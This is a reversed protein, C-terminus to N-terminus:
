KITQNIVEVMYQREHLSMKNLERQWREAKRSLMQRKTFTEGLYKTTHLKMKRIDYNMYICHTKPGGRSQSTFPKRIWGQLMDDYLECPYHSIMVNQTWFKSHTLFDIHDTETFEKKYLDVTTSRTSKLYPPDAFIFTDEPHDYYNLLWEHMEQYGMSFCMMWKCEDFKHWQHIVDSDLDCGTIIEQHQIGIKSSIAGSGLFLEARLKHRPIHNIIFQYVGSQSKNGTYGILPTPIPLNM